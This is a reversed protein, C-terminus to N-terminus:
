DKLFFDMPLPCNFVYNEGKFMFKLEFAHLLHRTASRAYPHGYINQAYTKDGIIPCNLALLHVRVQHTRGTKPFCAILASGHPLIKEVKYDTEASKQNLYTKNNTVAFYTNKRSVDPAISFTIKGEHKKPTFFCLAKYTKQIKQTKFLQEFEKQSQPNKAIIMLGSTDKDLRHVLLLSELAYKKSDFKHIAHLITNKDSELTGQVPVGAPKNIIMFDDNEFIFNENTMTQLSKQNENWFLEIVDNQMVVLKAIQIRKKNLFAGGNDIIAKIKKRSLEPFLITCALDFRANHTNKNIISKKTKLM